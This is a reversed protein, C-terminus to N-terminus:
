HTRFKHGTGKEMCRSIGTTSPAPRHPQSTCIIRQLSSNNIPATEANLALSPRICRPKALGNSGNPALCGCMCIFQIPPPLHQDPKPLGRREGHEQTRARMVHLNRSLHMPLASLPLNAALYSDAILPLDFHPPVKSHCLGCHLARAAVHESNLWQEASLRSSGM